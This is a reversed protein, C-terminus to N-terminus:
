VHVDKLSHGALKNRAGRDMLEYVFSSIEEDAWGDDNPVLRFIKTGAYYITCVNKVGSRLSTAQRKYTFEVQSLNYTRRRLTKFYNRHVVSLTSEEIVVESIRPTFLSYTLYILLFGMGVFWGSSFLSTIWFVVGGFLAVFLITYMLESSLNAKYTTPNPNSM